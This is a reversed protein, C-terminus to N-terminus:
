QQHSQRRKWKIPLNKYDFYISSLLVLLYICLYHVSSQPSNMQKFTPGKWTKDFNKLSFSISVIFLYVFLSNKNKWKKWGVCPTQAPLCRVQVLILCLPATCSLKAFFRRGKISCKTDKILMPPPPPVVNWGRELLLPLLNVSLSCFLYTHPQTKQLHM